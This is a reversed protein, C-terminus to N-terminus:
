RTILSKVMAELSESMAYFFRRQTNNKNQDLEMALERERKMSEMAYRLTPAEVGGKEVTAMLNFSKSLITGLAPDSSSLTYAERSWDEISQ